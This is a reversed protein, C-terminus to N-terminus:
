VSWRSNFWEYMVGIFAGNIYEYM